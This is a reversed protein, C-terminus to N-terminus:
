RTSAVLSPVKRGKRRPLPGDPRPPVPEVAMDFRSDIGLTKSFAPLVHSIARQKLYIVMALYADELAGHKQGSRSHGIRAAVAKLSSSGGIGSNRHAQMTCHSAKSLQSRGSALFERNIFSLDFGINHSVILEAEDFFEAIEVISAEFPKQHRLTWDDYGHIEEARPHSKKGPDCLIQIARLDLDKRAIDKTKLSIGAFSVIRDTSHLGTTEVDFFLIRDPPSCSRIAKGAIVAPSPLDVKRGLSSVPAPASPLWTSRPATAGVGNWNPSPPLLTSVGKTHTVAPRTPREPAPSAVVGGFLRKFWLVM